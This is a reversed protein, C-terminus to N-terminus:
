TREWGEIGGPRVDFLPHVAPSTSVIRNYLVPARVKLKALLHDWEFEVQGQTVPIVSFSGLGRIKGHDFTYGRECAEIYVAQLYSAIAANPCAQSKFRELQPHNRYGKTEGRLVAQALLAERWLAVLGRSDLYRPHLTWIRMPQALVARM